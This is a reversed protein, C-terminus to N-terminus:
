KTVTFKEVTVTTAAIVYDAGAPLAMAEGLSIIQEHSLAAKITFDGVWVSLSDDDRNYIVGGPM